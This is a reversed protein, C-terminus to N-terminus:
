DCEIAKEISVIASSLQLYADTLTSAAEENTKGEDQIEDDLRVELERIENAIEHLRKRRDRDM